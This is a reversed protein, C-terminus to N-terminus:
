RVTAIFKVSAAVHIILNVHSILENTENESLGLNKEITDGELVRIKHLLSTPIPRFTFPLGNVMKEFREAGVIGNKPRILVYVTEVIDLSDLLKAM